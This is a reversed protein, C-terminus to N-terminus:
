KFMFDFMKKLLEMYEAPPSGQFYSPPIMGQLNQLYPPINMNQYNQPNPYSSPPVSHASPNSQNEPQQVMSPMFQSQNISENRIPFNLNERNPDHLDEM